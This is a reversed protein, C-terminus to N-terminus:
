LSNKFKKNKLIRSIIKKTKLVKLVYKTKYKLNEKCKNSNNYYCVAKNFPKFKKLYYKITKVGHYFSDCNSIIGDGQPSPFNGSIDPCWYKYKIQLPGFCKYRTPKHQETFRSEAWAISLVNEIKVDLSKADEILLSCVALNEESPEANTLDIYVNTCFSYYLSVNLILNIM